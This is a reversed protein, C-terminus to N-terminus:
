KIGVIMSDPRRASRGQLPPLGGGEALGPLRRGPGRPLNPLSGWNWPASSPKPAGSPSALQLIADPAPEKKM